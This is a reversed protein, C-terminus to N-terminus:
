DATKKVVKFFVYRLNEVTELDEDLDLKAGNKTIILEGMRISKLYFYGKVSFLVLLVTVILLVDTM